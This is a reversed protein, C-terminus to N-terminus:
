AAEYTFVGQIADNNGWTFPSASSIGYEGSYTGLSSFGFPLFETASQIYVVAPYGAVGADLIRLAGSAYGQICGASANVPFGFAPSNSASLASTSGLVFKFRVYVTKGIQKYACNFSGNGVTLNTTTPTYATCASQDPIVETVARLAAPGITSWDAQVAYM